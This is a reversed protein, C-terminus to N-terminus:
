TLKQKTIRAPVQSDIRRSTITLSFNSCFTFLFAFCCCAASLTFFVMTRVFYGDTPLKDERERDLQTSKTPLSYIVLFTVVPLTFGLCVCMTPSSTAEKFFCVIIGLIAAIMVAFTGAGLGFRSVM